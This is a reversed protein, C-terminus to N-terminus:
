GHITSKIRPKCLIARDSYNLKALIIDQKITNSQNTSLQNTNLQNTSLQNTSLQNSNLQNTSLQNTNYQKTRLHITSLKGTTIISYYQQEVPHRSLQFYLLPRPLWRAIPYFWTKPTLIYAMNSETLYIVCASMNQCRNNCFLRCLIDMIISSVISETQFHYFHRGKFCKLIAVLMRIKINYYVREHAFTTDLKVRRIEM